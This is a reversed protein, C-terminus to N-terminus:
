DHYNVYLDAWFRGLLVLGEDSEIAFDKPEPAIQGNLVRSIIANTEPNNITLSLFYQLWTRQPCFSWAIYLMDSLHTIGPLEHNPFNNPGFYKATAAKPGMTNQVM